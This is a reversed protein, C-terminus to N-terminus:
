VIVAQAKIGTLGQWDEKESVSAPNTVLELATASGTASGMFSISAPLSHTATLDLSVGTGSRCVRPRIFTSGTADSSSWSWRAGLGIVPHPFNMYTSRLRTPDGGIASLSVSSSAWGSSCAVAWVSESKPLLVPDLVPLVENSSLYGSGSSRDVAFIPNTVLVSGARDLDLEFVSASVSAALITVATEPTPMAPMGLLWLSLRFIRLTFALGSPWAWLSGHATHPALKKCWPSRFRWVLIWVPSRGNAQLAHPAVKLRESWRLYWMVLCVPTLGKALCNTHPSHSVVKVRLFSIFRWMRRFCESPSGKGNMQESHSARKTVTESSFFCLLIWVPSFGKEHLRHLAAKLWDLWRLDWMVLCVPSFGYGQSLHPAAKRHDLRKFFWM